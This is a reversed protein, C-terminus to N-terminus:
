IKHEKIKNLEAKLHALETDDVSKDQAMNIAKTQTSAAEDYFGLRCLLHALTDYYAFVPDLEIARKTWLMAKSLYNQNHTGLTYFEYAANNLTSAIAGASGGSSVTVPASVTRSIRTVMRNVSDPGKVMMKVTDPKRMNINAIARQRASEMQLATVKRASDAGINMYFNDYFFSAQRYYTATDNVMRYYYLMQSQSSIAGQRPNSRSWTAALYNAGQQAFNADKRNIGEAITNTIIHQNIASRVAVPEKKYISDVIRTKNIRNAYCLGYAKGYAYPGAQLVFLVENYDKFADPPLATAYEEILKANDTIGLSEKLTIYEKLFKPSHDGMTYRLEYNSITKGSAQNDLASKSMALYKDKRSANGVEKYVLNGKSDEFLYIPYTTTQYKLKLAAAASDSQMVSYMVFNKNYLSVVEPDDLGSTFNRVAGNPLPPLSTPKPAAIIVLLLKKESKAKALGKEYTDQYNMKQSLAATFLLLGTLSLIIKKM